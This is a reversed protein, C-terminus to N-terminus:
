KETFKIDFSPCRRQHVRCHGECDWTAQKSGRDMFVSGDPLVSQYDMSVHGVARQVHFVQGHKFFFASIVVESQVSEIVNMWEDLHRFKKEKPKM